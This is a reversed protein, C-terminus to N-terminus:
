PAYRNLHLRKFPPIRHLRRNITGLIRTNSSPLGIKFVGSHVYLEALYIYRLVRYTCMYKDCFSCELGCDSWLVAGSTCFRQEASLTRKPMRLSFFLFTRDQPLIYTRLVYTCYMDRMWTPSLRGTCHLNAICSPAAPLAQLPLSYCIQPRTPVKEGVGFAFPGKTLRTKWVSSYRGMM